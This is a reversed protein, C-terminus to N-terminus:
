AVLASLRDNDGFVEGARMVLEEASVTDNENIVPVAGLALLRDLLPWDAGHAEYDTVIEAPLTNYLPHGKFAEGYERLATAVLGLLRGRRPHGTAAAYLADVHARARERRPAHVGALFRLVGEWEPNTARGDAILAATNAEVATAATALHRAAFYEQFSRHWPRVRREPRGAPDEAVEFRLLGTDEYLQELATAAEPVGGPWREPAAEVVKEAADDVPMATGGHTQMADFLTELLELRITPTLIGDGRTHCLIDVMREYLEAASDPLREREGYVLLACTLLLPNDSLALNAHRRRLEGLAARARKAYDADCGQARCWRDVLRAADNGDLPATQVVRLPPGFRTEGLWAAPRTTLILRAQWAKGRAIGELCRVLADRADKTPLEDLADILLLYRGAKWGPRVDDETLSEASGARLEATVATLLGAPGNCNRLAAAELFVPVAPTLGGGALASIDLHHDPTPHDPDALLACALTYALHMLLVTKGAGPEGEIVLAPLAPASAIQELWAPHRKDREPEFEFAPQGGRPRRARKPENRAELHLAGEEDAWCWTPRARLSVYLDARDLQAGGAKSRLPGHRGARWLSARGELYAVEFATLTPQAGPPPRFRAEWWPKVAKVTKSIADQMGDFTTADRTTHLTILAAMENPAVEGLAIPRCLVSREPEALASEFVGPAGLRMGLLVIRLDAALPPGADADDVRVAVGSFGALREAVGRMTGGLEAAVGLVSITLSTTAPAPSAAPEAPPTRLADPLSSQHAPDIAAILRELGGDVLSAQEIVRGWVNDVKGDFNVCHRPLDADGVMREITAKDPYYTCLWRRLATRWATPTM